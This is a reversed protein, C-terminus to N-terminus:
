TKVEYKNNGSVLLKKVAKIDKNLDNPIIKTAGILAPKERQYLFETTDQLVLIPGQANAVRERTSQFHGGLINKEGMTKNSFFRYAVKANAWDQCAFPITEGLGDRM